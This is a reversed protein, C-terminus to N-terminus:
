NAWIYQKAPSKLPPLESLHTSKESDMTSSSHESFITKESRLQGNNLIKREFQRVMM